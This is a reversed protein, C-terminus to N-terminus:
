KHMDTSIILSLSVGNDTENWRNNTYEWWTNNKIDTCVFKSKCFHYLVRAIDFDTPTKVSQDMFYRLSTNMIEDFKNNETVNKWHNKAWYIISQNTLCDNGQKFSQWYKDGYYTTIDNYNFKDSQSSFLM